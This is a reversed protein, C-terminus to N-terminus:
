QCEDPVFGKKGINTRAASNVFANAEEPTFTHLSCDSVADAVCRVYEGHSSWDFCPDCDGLNGDCNEDVFNFIIEKANPNIAPDTDDCDDPPRFGDEDKDKCKGATDAAHISAIEGASLARNYVGVEDILGGFFEPFGPNRGIAINNDSLDFGLFPITVEQANKYFKVETTGPVFVAAVHQWQNLDVSFGTSSSGVGTFVFWTGGERLLSWDFGGNDSSVVHHRGSSTTTPFVWAEMTVGSSTSGQDIDLPTSVFDIFGDFSFAQDVFGATFTTGNVPTGDNPGLVDNANGDGPWWSVLGEPAPVCAPQAHAAPVATLILLIVGTLFWRHIRPM